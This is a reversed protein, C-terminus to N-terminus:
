VSDNFRNCSNKENVGTVITASIGTNIKKIGQVKKLTASLTNSTQWPILGTNKDKCAEPPRFVLRLGRMRTKGERCKTIGEPRGNLGRQLTVTVPM